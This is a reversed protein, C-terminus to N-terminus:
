QVVRHEWAFGQVSGYPTGLGVGSQGVPHEWALGQVLDCFTGSGVVLSGCFTTEICDRSKLMLTNGIWYM